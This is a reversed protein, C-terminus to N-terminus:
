SYAWWRRKTLLLGKRKAKKPAMRRCTMTVKVGNRVRTLLTGTGGSARSITIMAEKIM